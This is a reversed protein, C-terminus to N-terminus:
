VRRRLAVGAVGLALLALATPEPVTGDGLTGKVWSVAESGVRPFSVTLSSFNPDHDPSETITFAKLDSLIFTGDSGLILTFYTGSVVTDRSLVVNSFGRSDTLTYDGISTYDDGSYATGYTSLYSAISDKNAGSPAQILYATGTTAPDSNAAWRATWIVSAASAVSASFLTACFLCFLKHM